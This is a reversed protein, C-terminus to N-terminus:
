NIVDYNSNRRLSKKNETDPYSPYSHKVYTLLVVDSVALPTYTVGWFNDLHSKKKRFMVGMRESNKSQCYMLQSGNHMYVITKADWHSTYKQINCVCILSINELLRFRFDNVPLKRILVGKRVSHSGVFVSLIEWQLDRPLSNFLQLINM